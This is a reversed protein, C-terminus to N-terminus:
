APHLQRAALAQYIRVEVNGLVALAYAALPFRDTLRIDAKPPLASM